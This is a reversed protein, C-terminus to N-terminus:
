ASIVVIVSLVSWCTIVSEAVTAAGDSGRGRSRSNEATTLGTVKAVSLASRRVPENCSFSRRYRPAM